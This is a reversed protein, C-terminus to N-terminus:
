SVRGSYQSCSFRSAHFMTISIIISIDPFFVFSKARKQVLTHTRAHTEKQWFWISNTHTKKNKMKTHSTLCDPHAVLQIYHAFFSMANMLICLVYTRYKSNINNSKIQGWIISEIKKKQVSFKLVSAMRFEICTDVFLFINWEIKRRRLTKLLFAIINAIKITQFFWWNDRETKKRWMFSPTKTLIWKSIRGCVVVRTIRTKILIERFIVVTFM